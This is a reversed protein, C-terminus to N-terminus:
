PITFFPKKSTLNYIKSKLNNLVILYFSKTMLPPLIKITFQKSNTVLFNANQQYTIEFHQLLSKPAGVAASFCFIRFRIISNPDTFFYESWNLKFYLCKDQWIIRKYLNIIPYFIKLSDRLSSINTANFLLLLLGTPVLGTKGKFWQM